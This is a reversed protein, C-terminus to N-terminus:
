QKEQARVQMTVMELRVSMFSLNSKFLQEEIENM